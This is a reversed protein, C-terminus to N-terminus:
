GIKNLCYGIVDESLGYMPSSDIVRGGREFFVKLVDARADRLRGSDGVNFTIWSGM